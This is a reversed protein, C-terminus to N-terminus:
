NELIPLKIKKYDKIIDEVYKEEKSRIEITIDNSLDLSLMGLISNGSVTFYSSKALILCNSHNTNINVFQKILNIDNMNTRIRKTKM